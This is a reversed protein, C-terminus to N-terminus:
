KLIFWYAGCGSFTVIDTAEKTRVNSLEKGNKKMVGKVEGTRTYFLLYCQEAVTDPAYVGYSIRDQEKLSAFIQKMDTMNQAALIQNLSEQEPNIKEVTSVMKEDKSSKKVPEIKIPESIESLPQLDAGKEEESLMIQGEGYILVIENKKM